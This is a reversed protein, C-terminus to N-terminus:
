AITPRGHTVDGTVNLHRELPYRYVVNAGKRERRWKVKREEERGKVNNKNNNNNCYLAFNELATFKAFKDLFRNQPNLKQSNIGDAM